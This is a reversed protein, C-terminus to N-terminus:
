ESVAVWQEIGVGAPNELSPVREVVLAINLNDIRTQSGAKYTVRLPMRLLWRYKGNIVGQNEITPASRPEATVVQQNATVSEVIKARQLASAFSEWGRRTFHRSAQQLRRQYDHYGFTMTESVAQTAWSMLASPNMNARDLPIMQLIRGDATTAFYRDLPKSTTIYLGLALVLAIIVIAQLIVIRIMNRFGDRYFENRTVITMLAGGDIVPGDDAAPQQKDDAPKGTQAMSYGQEVGRPSTDM